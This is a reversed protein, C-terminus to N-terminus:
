RSRERERLYVLTVERWRGETWSGSGGTVKGAIAVGPVATMIFGARGTFDGPCYGASPCRVSVRLEFSRTEFNTLEYGRMLCERDQEPDDLVCGRYREDQVFIQVLCGTQLENADLWEYYGEIAFGPEPARKSWSGSTGAGCSITFVIVNGLLAARAPSL